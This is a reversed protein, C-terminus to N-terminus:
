GKSAARMDDTQKGNSKGKKQNVTINNEKTKLWKEFRSGFPLMAADEPALAGVKVSTVLYIMGCVALAALFAASLPLRSCLPLYVAIAALMAVCSAGLPKGFISLLGGSYADCKQMFGFNMGVAVVNCLLTSVPAGMMAVEPIGILIYASVVKVVMGVLMSLIPLAAKRHAQLVSNTVNMLCTSVVSLGLVSLLPASLEIPETQGSFLLSLIPRSFISMGLACPVAVLACLRMAIGILHEERERCGSEVADTLGPVLSVSVGAILSSPLHCIPVAMTSYSGFMAAAVSPDFGIDSLRRLILTMDVVRALGSLSASVTVPVALMLLGSLISRASDTSLDTSFADVALRRRTQSILLYLMSIASGAVLGVVALAAAKAPPWGSRTAWVALALGLILKGLAEIVQSAATPVMNQNGQFYGRVASAVAVFFVTPAIMTICLRADSSGVAHALPAACLSMILAGVLGLGFFLAFSIRYIKKVNRLRGHALSESILISVAVPLGATAVVFFLTYLEYAANFYGMGEAGLHHMMPIKYVLGIVKVLVTSLTLATVGSLFRKGSADNNM